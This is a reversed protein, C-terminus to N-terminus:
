QLSQRHRFNILFIRYTTIHTAFEDLRKTVLQLEALYNENEISGGM